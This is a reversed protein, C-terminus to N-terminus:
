RIKKISNASEDNISTRYQKDEERHRKCVCVAVIMLSLFSIGLISYITILMAKIFKGETILYVDEDADDYSPLYDGSCVKGSHSWRWVQMLIFLVISVSINAAFLVYSCWLLVWRRLYLGLQALIARIFTMLSMFFGWRIAIKFKTTVDIYINSSTASLPVDSNIDAKCETEGLGKYFFAMWCYFGLVTLQVLFIIWDVFQPVLRVVLREEREGEKEIFQNPNAAFEMEDFNQRYIEENNNSNVSEARVIKSTM